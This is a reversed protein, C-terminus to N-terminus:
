TSSFCKGGTSNVDYFM